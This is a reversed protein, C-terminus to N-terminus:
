TEEVINIEGKVPFPDNDVAKLEVELAELYKTKLAIQLDEDQSIKMSLSNNEILRQISFSIDELRDAKAMEVAAALAVNPDVNKRETLIWNYYKKVLKQTADITPPNLNHTMLRTSAIRELM